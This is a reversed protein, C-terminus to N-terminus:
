SRSNALSFSFKRSLVSILTLAIVEKYFPYNFFLKKRLNVLEKGAMDFWTQPYSGWVTSIMCPNHFLPINKLSM